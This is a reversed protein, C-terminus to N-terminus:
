WDLKLNVGGGEGEEPNACWSGECLTVYVAFVIEDVLDYSLLSPGDEGRLVVFEEVVGLCLAREFPTCHQVTEVHFWVKRFVREVVSSSRHTKHHRGTFDQVKGPSPCVRHGVESRIQHDVHPPIARCCDCLLPDFLVISLNSFAAVLVSNDYM